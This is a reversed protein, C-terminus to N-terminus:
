EETQLLNENSMLVFSPIEVPLASSATCCEDCICMKMCVDCYLHDNQMTCTGFFALVNRRRCEMKNSGAVAKLLADTEDKNNRYLINCSPKHERGARGCQQVFNSLTRTYGWNM